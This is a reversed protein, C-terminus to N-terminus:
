MVLYSFPFSNILLYIYFSLDSLARIARLGETDYRFYKKSQMLRALIFAIFWTVGNVMIYDLIYAQIIYSNVLFLSNKQYLTFYLLALIVILLMIFGMHVFFLILLFKQLNPPNADKAYVQKMYMESFISRTIVMSLWLFFTNFAKLVYIFYFQSDFIIQM